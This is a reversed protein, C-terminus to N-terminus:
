ILAKEILEVDLKFHPDVQMQDMVVNVSHIATSHDRGFIRGVESKSKGTHKILLYIAIQRPVRHEERRSKGKIDAESIKYHMCVHRVIRDVTKPMGSVFYHDTFRLAQAAAHVVAVIARRQDGAKIHAWADDLGQQIVAYGEHMSNLPPLHKQLKELEEIVPTFRASIEITESM